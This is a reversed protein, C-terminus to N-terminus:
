HSREITLTRLVDEATGSYEREEDDDPLNVDAHIIAVTDNDLLLALTATTIQVGEWTQMVAEYGKITTHKQDYGTLCGKDLEVADWLIEETSLGQTNDPIDVVMIESVEASFGPQEQDPYAPYSFPFGCWIIDAWPLLPHGCPTYFDPDDPGSFHEVDCDKDLVWGPAGLIFRWGDVTVNVNKDAPTATANPNEEEPAPAIAALVVFHASRGAAGGIDKTDHKDNEEYSRTLQQQSGKM